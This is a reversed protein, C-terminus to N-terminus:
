FYCVDEELTRVREAQPKHTVHIRHQNQRCSVPGKQTNTQACPHPSIRASTHKAILRGCGSVCVCVSEREREEHSESESEGERGRGGERERERERKMCMCACAHVFVSV